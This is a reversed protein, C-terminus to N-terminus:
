IAMMLEDFADAVRNRHDSDVAIDYHGRRINQVLAHGAVVIRASRPQKLGRVPRLRAKLRAHDAEIRNNAYRDTVHRTAPVLEDLVTPYIGALDTNVEVPATSASLAQQFFRRAAALDRKDSLMVDIVQGFQDVARHLYMWRGSVRVYTEDVFWRDGGGHRRVRAVDILLPTFAQVWRFVSVHDVVIGREALLEEIDRYSLGYRLYWRVALMIVEPPFRYGAFASRDVKPSSARRRRM